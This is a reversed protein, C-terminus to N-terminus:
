ARLFSVFVASFFKSISMITWKLQKAFLFLFLLFLSNEEM